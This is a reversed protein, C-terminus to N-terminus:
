NSGSYGFDKILKEYITLNPALIFFNNLGKSLHLYAIIAGMLRTKGVGTAINHTVSPFDRQFDICSPFLAKIAELDNELSSSRKSKNLPVHDAITATIDLAEQLPIRLSLRQKIANLITTNM